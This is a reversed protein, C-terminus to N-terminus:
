QEKRHPQRFGGCISHLASHRNRVPLQFETEKKHEKRKQQQTAYKDGPEAAQV